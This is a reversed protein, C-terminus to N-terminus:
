PRGGNARQFAAKVTENIVRSGRGYIVFQGQRWDIRMVNHGKRNPVYVRNDHGGMEAGRGLAALRMGLRIRRIMAPCALATSTLERIM